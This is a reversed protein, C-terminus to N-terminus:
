TVVHFLVFHLSLDDPTAYGYLIDLLEQVLESNSKLPFRHILGFGVM